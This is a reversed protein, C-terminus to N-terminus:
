YDGAGIKVKLGKTEHESVGYRRGYFFLIRHIPSTPAFEATSIPLRSYPITHNPSVVSGDYCAYTRLMTDLFFDIDSSDTDPPFATMRELYDRTVLCGAM